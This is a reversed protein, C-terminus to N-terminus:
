SSAPSSTSSPRSGGNWATKGHRILYIGPFLDGHAVTAPNVDTLAWGISTTLDPHLWHVSAPQNDVRSMEVNDIDFNWPAGAALWSKAIKLCRFHTVLGLRQSPEWNQMVNKLFPLFRWRFDNFSEGDFRSKLGRGPVPKDPTDQMYRRMAPLATTVPTGELEGLHWPELYKTITIPCSCHRQVAQATQQARQLTSCYLADAPCWGARRLERGLREGQKLGDANLPIDSTGRVVEVEM